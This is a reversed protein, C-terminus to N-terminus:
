KACPQIVEVINAYDDFSQSIAIRTQGNDAPCNDQVTITQMIGQCIIALSSKIVDPSTTANTVGTQTGSGCDGHNKGGFFRLIGWSGDTHELLENVTLGNDIFYVTGGNTIAMSTPGALKVQTADVTDEWDALSGGGAITHIVGKADVMKVKGAGQDAIFVRGSADVAIDAAKIKASIAPGEDGSDGAAGSGAVTAIKGDATIKRVKSTSDQTGMEVFYITGNTLLKVGLPGKISAASAALGDGTSAYTGTGAITKISGDTAIKLILNRQMNSLILSNDPATAMSGVENFPVLGVMSHNQSKLLAPADCGVMGRNQVKAGSKAIEWVVIQSSNPAAWDGVLLRNDTTYALATPSIFHHQDASASATCPADNAVKGILVQPQSSGVTYKLVGGPGDSLISGDTNILLAEFTPYIASLTAMTDPSIELINQDFSTDASVVQTLAGHTGLKKVGRFGEGIYLTGDPGLALGIPDALALPDGNSKYRATGTGAVKTVVGAKSIEDVIQRAQDAVFINGSPDSTMTGIVTTATTIAWSPNFSELGGAGLNAITKLTGDAQIKRIRGSIEAYALEGTPLLALASIQGVAAGKAPQGDATFGCTEDKGTIIEVPGDDVIKYIRCFNMSVAYVGDQRCAIASPKMAIRLRSSTDTANFSNLSGAYISVLGDKMQYIFSGQSFYLTDGRKCLSFPTAYAVTNAPYSLQQFGVKTTGTDGSATLQLSTAVGSQAQYHFPVSPVFGATVGVAYPLLLNATESRESKGTAKIKLSFMLEASNAQSDTGTLKCTYSLGDKSPDCSNVDIQGNVTQPKDWALSVGSQLKAAKLESGDTQAVVVLCLSEYNKPAQQTYDCRIRANDYGALYVGTINVPGGANEENDPQGANDETTAKESSDAIQRHKEKTNCSFFLVFCGAVILIFRKIGIEKQNGRM